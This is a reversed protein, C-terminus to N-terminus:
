RREVIAALAVVDTEIEDVCLSSIELSISCNRGDRRIHQLLAAIGHRRGELDGVFLAANQKLHRKGFANARRAASRRARWRVKSGRACVEHKGFINKKAGEFERGLRM